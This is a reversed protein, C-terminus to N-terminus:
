FKMGAFEFKRRRGETIAARLEEIGENILSDDNPYPSQTVKTPEGLEAKIIEYIFKKDKAELKEWNGIEKIVRDVLDLKAELIRPLSEKQLLVNERMKEQALQQQYTARENGWGTTKELTNGNTAQEITWGRGKVLWTRVSPYKENLIYDAKLKGWDTIAM